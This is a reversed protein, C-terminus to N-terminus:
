GTLVVAYCTVDYISCTLTDSPYCSKKLACSVTLHLQYWYTATRCLKLEVLVTTMTIPFSRSSFTSHRSTTSTFSWRELVRWHFSLGSGSKVSAQFLCLMANFDCRYLVRMIRQRIPCRCFDGDLWSMTEDTWDFWQLCIEFDGACVHKYVTALTTCVAKFINVPFFMRFNKSLIKTQRSQIRIDRM